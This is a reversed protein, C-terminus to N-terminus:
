VCLFTVSSKEEMQPRQHSRQGVQPSTLKWEVSWRVLTHLNNLAVVFLHMNVLWNGMGTAERDLMIQVRTTRCIKRLFTNLLVEKRAVCAEISV